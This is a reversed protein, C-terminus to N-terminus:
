LDDIITQEPLPIVIGLLESAWRRIRELYDEMELTSLDTTSKVKTIKVLKGRVKIYRIDTLFLSKLSEHVNESEEGIDDAIMKVVVGFYYNNEENSRPKRYRGVTVTIHKGNFQKFMGKFYEPNDPTVKGDKVIAHSFLKM